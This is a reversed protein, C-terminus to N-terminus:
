VGLGFGLSEELIITLYYVDCFVYSIKRGKAKNEIFRISIMLNIICKEPMQYSAFWRKTIESQNELQPTPTYSVQNQLSHFHDQLVVLLINLVYQWVIVSVSESVTLSGPQPLSNQRKEHYWCDNQFCEYRNLTFRRELM